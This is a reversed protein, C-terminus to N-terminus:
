AEVLARSAGRRDGDADIAVYAALAVGLDRLM